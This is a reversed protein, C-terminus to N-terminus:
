DTLLVPDTQASGPSADAFAIWAVMLLIPCGRKSWRMTKDRTGADEGIPSIGDRQEGQLTSKRPHAVTHGWKRENRPLLYSSSREGTAYGQGSFSIRMFWRSFRGPVTTAAATRNNM